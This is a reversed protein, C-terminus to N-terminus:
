QAESAQRLFHGLVTSAAGDICREPEFITGAARPTFRAAAVDGASSYALVTAGTRTAAPPPLVAWSRHEIVPTANGLDKMLPDAWGAPTPTVPFTGIRASPVARVPWGFAAALLTFGLGIGLVPRAKAYDPLAAHLRVRWPAAETPDAAGNTLIYACFARPTPLRGGIGDFVQAPMRNAFAHAEIATVSSESAGDYLDIIAIEKM